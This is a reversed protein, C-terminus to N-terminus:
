DGVNKRCTPGSKDGSSRAPLSWSQHNVRAAQKAMDTRPKQRTEHRRYQRIGPAKLAWVVCPERENGGRCRSSVVNCKTTVGPLGKRIDPGDVM